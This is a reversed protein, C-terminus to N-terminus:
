RFAAVYASLRAPLRLQDTSLTTFLISAAYGWPQVQIAQSLHYLQLVKWPLREPELLRSIVKAQLAQVQTPVHVLAVGGQVLAHLQHAGRPVICGWPLLPCNPCNLTAKHWPWLMM